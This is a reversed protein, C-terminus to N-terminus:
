REMYREYAAQIIATVKDIKMNEITKIYEDYKSLPEVGMIFKDYMEDVYTNIEAMLLSYENSEEATLVVPPMFIETSHNKSNLWVKFCDVQGRAVNIAQEFQRQDAQYQGGGITYLTHAQSFSLGDPNNVILDTFKPFGDVWEYTEGEIGFVKYMHGEESYVWDCWRAAEVPYKCATTIAMGTLNGVYNTRPSYAKGDISQIHPIGVIQFEPNVDAMAQQYRSMHNSLVGSWAGAINGTVKASDSDLDSTVYELDILGKKYWDNMKTIFAKYEQTSPGFIVKSDRLCFGRDIGYAYVFRSFNGIFPIEDDKNNGNPDQTKFATLVSEWEDINTPADLGLNELWDGRMLFGGANNIRHGESVIFPFILMTGDDLVSQRYIEENEFVKLIYPCHENIIDNLPILTGNEIMSTPGGPVTNWNWYIMDPLDGSAIMLNFQEAAQAAAPHQWDIHIGTKEEAIKYFGVDNNDTAIGSIQGLFQQFVTLTLPETVIPLVKSNEESKKVLEGNVATSSTESQTQKKIDSDTKQTCGYLICLVVVMLMCLLLSVYRKFKMNM